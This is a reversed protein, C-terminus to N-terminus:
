RAAILEGVMGQRKAEYYYGRRYLRVAADEDGHAVRYANALYAVGYKLNTDPDTLGM